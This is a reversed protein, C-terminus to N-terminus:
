LEYLYHDGGNPCKDKGFIRGYFKKGCKKCIYKYSASNGFVKPFFIRFWRSNYLVYFVFGIVVIAILLTNTFSNKSSKKEVGVDPNNSNNADQLFKTSIYGENGEFDIKAWKGNLELVTVASGNPIVGLTEFKTGAGKRVNVDQTTVYSQANTVIFLVICVCLLLSKKM